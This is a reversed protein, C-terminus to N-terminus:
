QGDGGDECLLGAAAFLADESPEDAQVLRRWGQMDAEAARGLLAVDQEERKIGLRECEAAFRSLTRGSYILTIDTEGAHLAAAAEESLDTLAARYVPVRVVDLAAPIDADAVAKGSLHLLHAPGQKTLAAFLSAAGGGEATLRVDRFGARRAAEATRKGVCHAPLALLDAPIEAFLANASTLVVADFDGGPRQWPLPEIRLLPCIIPEHGMARLRVATAEAQHQPRTVLLKM